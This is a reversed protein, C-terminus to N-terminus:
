NDISVLNPAKGHFPQRGAGILDPRFIVLIPDRQLHNGQCFAGWRCRCIQGHGAVSDKHGCHQPLPSLTVTVYVTMERAVGTVGWGYGCDRLKGQDYNALGSLQAIIIGMFVFVSGSVAITAQAPQAEM